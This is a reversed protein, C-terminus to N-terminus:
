ALWVLVKQGGKYDILFISPFITTQENSKVEPNEKDLSNKYPNTLIGAMQFSYITQNGPKSLNQLLTM